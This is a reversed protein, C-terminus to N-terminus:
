WVEFDSSVKLAEQVELEFQGRDIRRRMDGMIEERGRGDVFVVFRLGPFVREYEENLRGLEEGQGQLNRQEAESQASDVKKAGLRPHSGLVSLLANTPESAAPGALTLLQSHCADILSPYSPFLHNKLIALLAAHISPSPEFLADLVQIQLEEPSSPLTSVPPLTIISM